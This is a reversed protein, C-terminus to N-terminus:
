TERAGWTGSLLTCLRSLEAEPAEPRQMHSTHSDLRPTPGKAKGSPKAKIHMIPSETEGGGAEVSVVGLAM